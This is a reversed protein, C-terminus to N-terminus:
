SAIDPEKRLLEEAWANFTGFVVSEQLLFEHADRAHDDRIPKIDGVSEALLQLRAARELQIALYTAEELSQGVTLLGHNALLISRKDGLAESIIRGEENAVPVGPWHSLYACDNYFMAVDMHAVALEKGTMSLASAHPPHTHVIANIGPRARYIWMHFRVGPNPIGNGEVVKLNEDMRIVTTQRINPFGGSIQNTWFTNGDAKATVQGALTGAHGEAALKRCALAVKLPVPWNKEALNDQLDANVRIGSAADDQNFLGTNDEPSM